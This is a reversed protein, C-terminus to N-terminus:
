TRCLDVGGQIWCPQLPLCCLAARLPCRCPVAGSVALTLRTGNPQKHAPLKYWKLYRLCRFCEQPPQPTVFAAPLASLVRLPRGPDPQIGSTGPVAGWSAGSAKAQCGRGTAKERGGRCDWTEGFCDCLVALSSKEASTCYRLGLFRRCM